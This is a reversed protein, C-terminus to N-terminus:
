CYGEFHAFSYPLVADIKTLKDFVKFSRAYGIVFSNVSANLDDIPIAPDLLINGSSFSYSIGGFNTAIPVASLNRPELDQANLNM